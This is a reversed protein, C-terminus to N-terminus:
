APIAPNLSPQRSLKASFYKMKEEFIPINLYVPFCSNKKFSRILERGPSIDEKRRIQPCLKIVLLSDHV